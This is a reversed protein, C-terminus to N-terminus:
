QWYTSSLSDSESATSTATTSSKTAAAYCWMVCWTCTDTLMCLHCCPPLWAHPLLLCETHKGRVMCSCTASPAKGNAADHDHDCLCSSHSLDLSQATGLKATLMDCSGWGGSVPPPPHPPPPPPPLVYTITVSGDIGKTGTGSNTSGTGGSSAATGFTRSVM